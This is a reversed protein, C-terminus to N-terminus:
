AAIYRRCSRALKPGTNDKPQQPGRSRKAHQDCYPGEGETKAGCFFVAPQLMPGLPWKCMHGNLNLLTVATSPFAEPHPEPRAMRAKANAVARNFRKTDPSDHPDGSYIPSPKRKVLGTNITRRATGATRRAVTSGGAAGIRWLKGLVSNRTLGGGMARAIQSCSEGDLYRRKAEDATEDTWPFTM